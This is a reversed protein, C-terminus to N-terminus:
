GVLGDWLFGGLVAEVIESEREFAKWPERTGIPDPLFIRLVELGEM